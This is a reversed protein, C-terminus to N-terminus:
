GKVAAIEGAAKAIQKTKRFLTVRRGLGSDTEQEVLPEADRLVVGLGRRPEHLGGFLALSFRLQQQSCQEKEALAHRLAIDRRECPTVDRLRIPLRISRLAAIDGQFM